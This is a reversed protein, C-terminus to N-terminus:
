VCKTGNWKFCEMHFYSKLGLNATLKGPAKFTVGLRVNVKWGPIQEIPKLQKIYEEIVSGPAPSNSERQAKVKIIGEYEQEFNELVDM